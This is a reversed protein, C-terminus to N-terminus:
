EQWEEVDLVLLEHAHRTARQTEYFATWFKIQKKTLRKSMFGQQSLRAILSEVTFYFM